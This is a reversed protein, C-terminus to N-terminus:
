YFPSTLSTKPFKSVRYVSTIIRLAPLLFCVLYNLLFYTEVLDNRLDPYDEKLFFMISVRLSPSSDAPIPQWPSYIVSCQLPLYFVVCRVSRWQPVFCLVARIGRCGVVCGPLQLLEPNYVLEYKGEVARYVLGLLKFCM